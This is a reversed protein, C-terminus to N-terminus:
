ARYQLLLGNDRCFEADRECRIDLLKEYSQLDAITRGVCFPLYGNRNFQKKFGFLSDDVGVGGGLHLQLLNRECGWRAAEYILLNTPAFKRFEPITGSLHYHMYRDNYFFMAASIIQEDKKCYFIVVNEKMESLLHEYYKRSFYYYPKAELRDMTLEYIDIFEDLREGHDMFIECGSNRAKRIVNRNKPDLNAMITAEDALDMAITYKVEQVEQAAPFERHNQLLPHYKILQAVIREQKCYDLFAQAFEQKQADNFCGELLPGGYGYPTTLDYYTGPAFAESFVEQEVIDRKHVSYCMRGKEGRFYLLMAEGDGHQVMAEMYAHLYYVDWNPFSKVISDWRTQDRSTIVEFRCM